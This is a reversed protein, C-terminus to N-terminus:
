KEIVYVEELYLLHNKTLCDRGEERVNCIFSNKCTPQFFGNCRLCRRQGRERLTDCRFCSAQGYTKMWECRSRSVYDFNDFLNPKIIIPPKIEDTHIDSCAKLFDERIQLREKKTFSKQKLIKKKM